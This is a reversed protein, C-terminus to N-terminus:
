VLPDIDPLKNHLSLILVMRICTLNNTQLSCAFWLCAKNNNLQNRKKM